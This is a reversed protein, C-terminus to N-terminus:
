AVTRKGTDLAAYVWQKVEVPLYTDKSLQFILGVDINYDEGPLPEIGTRIAYSGQDMYEFRPISINQAYRRLGARLDGLLLDRKERLLSNAGYSRRLTTDFKNFYTQVNAM